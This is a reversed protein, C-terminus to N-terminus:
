QSARGALLTRSHFNRSLREYRTAIRQFDKLVGYGIFWCIAINIHAERMLKLETPQIHLTGPESIEPAAPVLPSDDFAARRLWYCSFALWAGIIVAPRNTGWPCRGSRSIMVPM